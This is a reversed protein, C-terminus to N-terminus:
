SRGFTFTRRALWPSFQAFTMPRAILYGQGYTCGRARLWDYQEVTEVGEALTRFGFRSAIALVTEVLGADHQDDPLGRVFSKDIKIVDLPLRKLYSLSSYGTGFDDLAIVIGLERLSALADLTRDVDSMAVTETIEIGIHGAIQPHAAFQARLAAIFSTDGFQHGSLNIYCRFHEPLPGASSLDAVVREMVWKGIPGIMGNAEAFPIFEDPLVMGQQPHQWRVLAEAGVIQRSWLEITPQYRVTFQGATIAAALEVHLSRRREISRQLRDNFYVISGRQHAKAFDVAADARALLEDFATADQPYLAVGFTAGVRLSEKGDRDGIGFPQLFVDRYPQIRVEVDSFTGVDDILIAFNDGGLRAIFDGSQRAGRLAAAIEVLLADGIMHGFTENIERFRDLAVIAVACPIGVSTNRLTASRFPSRSPLGTLQDHEIQYRIQALQRGQQLHGSLFSALVDIFAHDDETFQDNRVDEPSAFAVFYSTTGVSFTTGILSNWPTSHVRQRRIAHDIDALDSFSITTGAQAIEYQLTEVLPIRTGRPPLHSAVLARRDRAYVDSSADIVFDDGDLHGIEGFFPRGPRIAGSATDLLAQFREADGLHEDGAIRWVAALRQTQRLAVRQNRDVMKTARALRQYGGFLRTMAAVLIFACACADLVRATLYGATFRRTDFWTLAADLAIALAALAVARDIRYLKPKMRWVAIAGALALVVIAQLVGHTRIGDMTGAVIMPPLASPAVLAVGLVATVFAALAAVWAAVINWPVERGALERRRLAAYALTSLAFLVRWLVQAYSGTQRDVRVLPAQDGNWSTTLVTFLMVGGGLLAAAVLVVVSRRAVASLTGWLLAATAFQALMCAILVAWVLAGSGPLVPGHGIMGVASLMLLVATALIARRRQLPFNPQDGLFIPGEVDM